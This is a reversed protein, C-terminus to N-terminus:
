FISQVQIAVMLRRKREALSATEQQYICQIRSDRIRDLLVM